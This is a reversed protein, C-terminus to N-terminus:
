IYYINFNKFIFHENSILFLNISEVLASDAGYKCLELYYLWFLMLEPRILMPGLNM